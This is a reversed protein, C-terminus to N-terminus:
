KFDVAIKDLIVCYMNSANKLWDTNYPKLLLM